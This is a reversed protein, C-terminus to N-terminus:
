AAAKRQANLDWVIAFIGAPVPGTQRPLENMIAKHRTMPIDPIAKAGSM